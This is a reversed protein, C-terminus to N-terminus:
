RTPALRELEQFWNKVVVFSSPTVAADDSQPLNIMVFRGDSAVDYSHAYPNPFTRYPEDFLEVAAGFSFDGETEVPVAMMATGALYFLERGDHSWRPELGGASSVRQPVGDPYRKVWIENEGTRDSVYALWRGNPSLAADYELNGTM